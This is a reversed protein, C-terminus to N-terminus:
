IEFSSKEPFKEDFAKQLINDNDDFTADIEDNICLVKYKDKKLAEEIENIQNSSFYKGFDVDQPEFKNSEINWHSMLYHSFDQESRFKNLCAKHLSKEEKDWIEKFTSKLHPYSTHGSKYGNINSHLLAMLNNINYRKNKFRLFKTLNRFINKRHNFYKNILITNNLEVHNYSEVPIIYRYVALDKVKNDVFYDEIEVKNVLFMDDNFLIFKESLEEIRHLNLEIVNSNYTPLFEKPIYEEHKVIRLKSHDTNLWEPVHGYTIFFIKNVWPANREIGRFWYRFLDSPQYRNKTDSTDYVTKQSYKSKEELWVHDTGDVWTVVIDVKEM